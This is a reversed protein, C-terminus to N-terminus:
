TRLMNARADAAAARPEMGDLLRVVDGPAQRMAMERLDESSTGAPALVFEVRNASRRLAPLNARPGACAVIVHGCDDHVTAIREALREPSIEQEGTLLVILCSRPTGPRKAPLTTPISSLTTAEGLAPTMM